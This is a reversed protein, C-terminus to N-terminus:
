RLSGTSEQEIAPTPHDTLWHHLGEVTMPRGLHYGQLLDCGHAQLWELQEVTEVGEAVVELKLRHAMDITSAVIVATRNDELMRGTFVRDIKLYSVPLDHLYALSSYGTGYDDVALRIGLGRLRLLFDTSSTGEVLLSETIEIRLAAGTLGRKALADSVYDVLQTDLLDSASLNVSVSISQGQTGLLVAEDLSLDLVKRTLAPMLGAGEALPLFADPAVRGRVPHNWRVLAEVGAPEGTSTSVIPQFEVELGGDALADRL